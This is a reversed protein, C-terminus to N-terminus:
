HYAQEYENAGSMGGDVEELHRTVGPMQGMPHEDFSNDGRGENYGNNSTV